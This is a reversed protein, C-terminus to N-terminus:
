NSRLVLNKWDAPITSQGVFCFQDKLGEPCKDYFNKGSNLAHGDAKTEEASIGAHGLWCVWARPTATIASWWLVQKAFSIVGGM